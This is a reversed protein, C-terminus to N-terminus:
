LQLMRQLSAMALGATESAVHIRNGDPWDRLLGLLNTTTTKAMNSCLSPHLAKVTIRGRNEEALRQVLNTETGIVITSGAPADEVYKIIQSTSGHADCLRLVDSPTEPHVIIKADPLVERVQRVYETLFAIHVICYGKWAVIKIRDLDVGAIGGDALMPDFMAIADDPIGLDHAANVGLHQDPLFLVKKSQSLVWKLVRVANSSTCASGGLRGCCAKVEATSNVYVVPLFGGGRKELLNWARMMSEATAMGAMPCGASMDPMYVNQEKRTLIDATEAMFRVGCLVIREAKRNAAAKRALELSDGIADAHSLVTMRQYHHGLILLKEGLDNRISDIEPGLDKM